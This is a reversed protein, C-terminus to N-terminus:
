AGDLERFHHNNHKIRCNWKFFLVKLDRIQDDSLASRRNNRDVLPIQNFVTLPYKAFQMFFSFAQQGLDLTEFDYRNGTGGSLSNWFQHICNQFHMFGPIASNGSGPQVLPKIIGLVM